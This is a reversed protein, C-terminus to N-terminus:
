GPKLPHYAQGSCPDMIVSYRSSVYATDNFFVSYTVRKSEESKASRLCVMWRPTYNPNSRMLDTVELPLEFHSEVAAAKTGELVKQEPPPVVNQSIANESVSSCAALVICLTLALLRM